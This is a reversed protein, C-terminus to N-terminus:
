IEDKDAVCKHIVNISVRHCHQLIFVFLIKEIIIFITDLIM